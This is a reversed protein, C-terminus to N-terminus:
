PHCIVNLYMKHIMKAVLSLSFGVLMQLPNSLAWCAHKEWVGGYCEMVVELPAPTGIWPM